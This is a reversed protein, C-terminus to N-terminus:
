LKSINKIVTSLKWEFQYEKTRKDYAMEDVKEMLDSFEKLTMMNALKEANKREAMFTAWAKEKNNFEYTFNGDSMEQKRKWYYAGFLGDPKCKGHNLLYRYDYIGNERPFDYSASGYKEKNKEIHKLNEKWSDSGRREIRSKEDTEEDLSSSNLKTTNDINTKTEPVSIFLMSQKSTNEVKSPEIPKVVKNLKYISSSISVLVSTYVESLHFETTKDVNNKFDILGEDKLRTLSFTLSIKSMGKLTSMDKHMDSFMFVSWESISGKLLLSFKVRTLYELVQADILKLSSHKELLQNPNFTLFQNM